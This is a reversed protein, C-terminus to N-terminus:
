SLGKRTEPDHVGEGFQEIDNDTSGYPDTGMQSMAEAMQREKQVKPINHKFRYDHGTSESNWKDTGVPNAFAYNCASMMKIKDKSQCHPCEVNPYEGSKDFPALEDYVKNCNKCEFDYLAM